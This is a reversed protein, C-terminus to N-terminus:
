KDELQKIRRTLYWMAKKLDQVENEKFKARLIYKIANGETYGLDFAEIIDMVELGGKKYHPPNIPDKNEVPM